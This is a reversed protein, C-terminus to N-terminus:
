INFRTLFLQRIHRGWQAAIPASKHTFRVHARGGANVVPTQNQLTLDVLFIRQMAKHGEPDTPDIALAGGGESGLAPSPLDKTAAPVARHIQAPMPTDLREVLRVDAHELHHRVLDIDGQNVVTRVTMAHLDVVHALLEGQHVFRGPLDPASPAVFIGARRSRVVLQDARSQARELDQRAYRIEEDLIAAKVRDTPEQQTQRAQLERLRAKAVLLETSLDPNRCIVLVDRHEVRAGPQAIVREVFGDVDARVFSEDPLWVVGEAVTHFPVPVFGVLGIVAAVVCMATAVARIRVRRLRSNFMLFSLGKAVPVAIMTVAALGAFLVALMPFQDGLFLLIGVVVLIRYLGAAVGYIVFWAREGTTAIPVVAEQQGLAYREVLYGLYRNARGKLNPIELYDMLMYYGDFRLLPNANFLVTSVGAILLTNYALMRVLGPEASVWVFLALSALFLEVVMGAAGVLIRQWKSQFAWAASAEVYPVPTFVLLMIGIEHVEGGFAKTILGHGLEHFLKVVPFLLWLLLLNQPAMVQDMFDHTLDTWHTGALVLASGVVALWMLGGIRGIFPRVLPLLWTLFRNPDCLPFRWSFFNLMRSMRVRGARAHARRSIESTDPLTDVVLADAAHLQSILRIVEDQAPADDGLQETAAEWIQQVARQGDMLGVIFYASPGFRHFQDTALDHLVYWTQGRYQHRYLRIHSRLRPKLCEVRYWSPSFFDAAM